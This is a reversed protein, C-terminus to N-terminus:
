QLLQKLRDATRLCLALITLTPNSRASTTFVSSGGIYLNAVGHVCCNSDVVGLKPSDHMRTSGMHHFNDHVTSVWSEPDRFSDRHSTSLTGLGLREFEGCAINAFELMTTRELEGVQWDLKVRRMGLSDRSDSLMIRSEPNPAMECNATVTIWGENPTAARKQLCRRYVLDLLEGPNGAMNRVLSGLESPYTRRKLASYLAKASSICSDALPWFGLVGHVSLIRKEAQARHTLAILPAYKVGRVFFSEFLDQLRSRECSEFAGICATIHEQFYRGVLDNDNGIGEPQVRNSALLIRANEIGGCCLVFFRGRAIGKKGGLTSFEIQEVASGATNAIISTVNAHLMVSINPADQLAGRYVTGFNPKPSWQSFEMHLRQADFDPPVIHFQSCVKGYELSRGLHLLRDARDYYPDLEERSIPWGSFPVWDRYGFDFEDLRLAQGGWTTTTGGFIRERGSHIGAHPLGTIESKYLSKSDAEYHLGGSELVVVKYRSGIFERALAIGAAGAGVVCIDSAVSSNDEFDNFDIIMLITCFAKNLGQRAAQTHSKTIVHLQFGRWYQIQCAGIATDSFEGIREM